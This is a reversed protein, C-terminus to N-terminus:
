LGADRGEGDVSRSPHPHVPLRFALVMVSVPTLVLMWETKELVEYAVWSAPADFGEWVTLIVAHLGGVLCAVVLGILVGRAEVGERRSLGFAIVLVAWGGLSLQLVQSILLLSWSDFSM